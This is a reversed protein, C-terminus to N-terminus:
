RTFAKCVRTPTTSSRMDTPRRWWKRCGKGCPFVGSWAPLRAFPSDAPRLPKRCKPDPRAEKPVTKAEGSSRGMCALADPAPIWFMRGDYVVYASQKSGEKLPTVERPIRLIRAVTGPPVNQGEVRRLESRRVSYEASADNRGTAGYRCM